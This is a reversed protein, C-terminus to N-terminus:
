RSLVLGRDLCKGQQLGQALGAARIIEGDREGEELTAMLDRGPALSRTPPKLAPCNSSIAPSSGSRAATISPMAM